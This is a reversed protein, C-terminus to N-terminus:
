PGERVLLGEIGEGFAAALAENLAASQPTALTLMQGDALVAVRDATRLALNLDHLAIVVLGQREKATIKLASITRAAQPLDLAASPEDLLLVTAGQALIM